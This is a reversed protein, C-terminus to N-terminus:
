PANARRRSPCCRPVGDRRHTTCLHPAKDWGHTTCLHPTSDRRTTCLHLASDRRRIACLLLTQQGVGAGAAPGLDDRILGCCSGKAIIAMVRHQQLSPQLAAVTRVVHDGELDAPLLRLLDEALPDPAFPIGGGAKVGPLLDIVHCPHIERVPEVATLHVSLQLCLPRLQPYPVCAVPSISLFLDVLHAPLPLHLHVM